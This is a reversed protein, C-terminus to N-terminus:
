DRSRDEAYDRLLADHIGVLDLTRRAAPSLSWSLDVSGKRCRLLTDLLLRIGTSDMFTLGSWDLVLEPPEKGLAEDLAEKFEPAAAFDLEGECRLTLNPGEHVMEVSFHVPLESM